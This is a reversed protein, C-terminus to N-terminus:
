KNGSLDEKALVNSTLAFLDGRTIESDYKLEAFWPPIVREVMLVRIYRLYWEEDGLAGEDEFGFALVIMKALEAYNITEAPRFSGDPYGEVIKRASMVALYDVFWAGGPVDSYYGQSCLYEEGGVGMAIALVKVVEARNVYDNLRADGGEDDGHIIEQEALDIAHSYARHSLRIDKFIEESIGRGRGMVNRQEVNSGCYENDGMLGVPVSYDFETTAWRGGMDMVGCEVVVTTYRTQSHVRVPNKKYIEIEKPKPDIYRSNPKTYDVVEVEIVMEKGDVKMWASDVDFGGREYPTQDEFECSIEIETSGKSASSYLSAGGQGGSSKSHYIRGGGGQLEGIFDIVGRSDNYGYVNVVEPTGVFAGDKFRVAMNVVDNVSYHAAASGGLLIEVETDSKRLLTATLGAPVNEIEYDNPGLGPIFVDGTLIGRRNGVVSGVDAVEENFQGDWVISPQDDFLVQGDSKEYNVISTVVTVGEFMGQLFRITMNQVDDKSEHKEAKGTLNLRVVTGSEKVLSLSLGQPVNEQDYHVGRQLQTNDNIVTSYVDGNLTATWVGGNVEGDNDSREVFDGGAWIVSVPDLFSVMPTKLALVQNSNIVRDRFSGAKVYESLTLDM